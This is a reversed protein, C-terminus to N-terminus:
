GPSFSWAVLMSNCVVWLETHPKDEREAEPHNWRQFGTQKQGASCQADCTIVYSLQQRKIPLLDVHKGPLWFQRPSRCSPPIPLRRCKAFTHHLCNSPFQLHTISKPPRFQPNPDTNSQHRINLSLECKVTMVIFHHFLYSIRFNCSKKFNFEFVKLIVRENM